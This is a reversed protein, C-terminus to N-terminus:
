EGLRYLPYFYATENLPMIDRCSDIVIGPHLPAKYKELVRFNKASKKGPAISKKIEIPYIGDPKVYLLDIEKKDKDRYYFLYEKPDMNYAYFYCMAVLIAIPHANPRFNGNAGSNM